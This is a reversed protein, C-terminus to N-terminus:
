GLSHRDPDVRLDHGRSSREEALAVGPEGQGPVEAFLPLAHAVRAGTLRSVLPRRSIDMSKWPSLAATQFVARSRRVGATRMRSPTSRSPNPLAAALLPHLAGISTDRRKEALVPLIPPM